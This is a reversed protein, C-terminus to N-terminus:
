CSNVRPINRGSKMMPLITSIPIGQDWSNWNGPLRIIMWGYFHFGCAPPSPWNPFSNLFFGRKGRITYLGANELTKRSEVEVVCTAPLAMRVEEFDILIEVTIKGRRALAGQDYRLSKRSKAGIKEEWFHDFSGDKKPEVM